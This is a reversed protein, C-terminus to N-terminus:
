ATVASCIVVTACPQASTRPAASKQNAEELRDQFCGTAFHQWNRCWWWWTIIIFSCRLTYYLLLPLLVFLISPFATFYLM